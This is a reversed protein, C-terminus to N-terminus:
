AWVASISIGWDEWNAGGSASGASTSRAAWSKSDPLRTATHAPLPTWREPALWSGERYGEGVLSYWAENFALYGGYPDDLRHLLMALAGLWAVAILALALFRRLPGSMTATMMARM